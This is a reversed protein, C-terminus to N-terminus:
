PSRASLHQTRRVFHQSGKVSPDHDQERSNPATGSYFASQGRQQGLVAQGSSSTRWIAPPIAQSGASFLTGSSVFGFGPTNPQSAGQSQGFTPTQNVGFSPSAPPASPGRDVIFSYGAASPTTAAGFNFGSRATNSSGGGAGSDCPTVATGKRSTTASKSEKTFLLSQSMISRASNSFVSSGESSAQGYVSAAVAARSSSTSSGFISGTASTAPPGPKECMCSVCKEDEANNYLCCLPCQWSRVPRKFKKRLAGTTVTCGSSSSAVTVASESAVPLTLVRKIGTASKLTESAACKIVELQNQVLFTDCDRTGVVPKFKDGLGTELACLTARGSGSPTRIGIQQASTNPPFKRAQCAICKNDTVKNPLLCIDCQWPSRAKLSESLRMGGPSFSSIAPRTYVVADTTTPQAELSDTKPSTFGSSSTIPGSNSSSGSLEATKVVPVTITLGIKNTLSQAPIIPSPSSTMVSSSFKVPPQSSSTIPVTIRQLVPVEMEEEEPPKTAVFDSREQTMNNGENDVGPSLGNAASLNFNPYSLGSQETNQEPTVAKGDVTKQMQAQFYTNIDMGNRDLPMELSQLIRRATLSMRGCSQTNLQKTKMLRRVPVQYPTNRVKPQRVVAAAGGYRTKGLYFPSDGLESRILISSEGNSLSVNGFAALNFAPKKSSTATHKSLTHYRDTDASSLAPVATNKSVASGSTVPESVSSSGSLEARKAVSM